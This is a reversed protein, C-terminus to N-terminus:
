IMESGEELDNDLGPFLQLEGDRWISEEMGEEIVGHLYSLSTDALLEELVRNAQEGGIQALAGVAIRAVDDDEDLALESLQSISESAGISGAARAAEARIEAYPSDMEDRLVPLWRPDASTGM